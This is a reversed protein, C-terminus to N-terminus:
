GVGVLKLATTPGETADPARQTFLRRGRRAVGDVCASSRADDSFGSARPPGAPAAGVVRTHDGRLCGTGDVQPSQRGGFFPPPRGAGTYNFVAGAYAWEKLRPFRPVLLTIACPLKWVGLIFLVYHPYGLHTLVGRTYEIRLLDWMSGAAMEWALLVTCVWYAVARAATPTVTEM